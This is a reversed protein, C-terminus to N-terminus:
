KVVPKVSRGNWREILATKMFRLELCTKVAKEINKTPNIVAAALASSESFSRVIRLLAASVPPTIM